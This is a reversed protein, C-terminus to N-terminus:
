IAKTAADSGITTCAYGIRLRIGKQASSIAQSPEIQEQFKRAGVESMGDVPGDRMNANGQLSRVGGCNGPPREYRANKTFGIPCRACDSEQLLFHSRLEVIQLM